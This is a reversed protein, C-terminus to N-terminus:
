PPDPTTCEHQEAATILDALRVLGGKCCLCGGGGVEEGCPEHLVSVGGNEWGEVLYQTPDM